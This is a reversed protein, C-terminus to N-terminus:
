VCIDKSDLEKWYHKAPMDYSEENEWRGGDLFLKPSDVEIWVDDKKGLGDLRIRVYENQLEVVSGAFCEEDEVENRNSRGGSENVLAPIICLVRESPGLSKKSIIPKALHWVEKSVMTQANVTRKGKSKKKSKSKASGNSAVFTARLM